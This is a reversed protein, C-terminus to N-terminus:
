KWFKSAKFIEELREYSTQKVMNIIKMDQNEFPFFNQKLFENYDIDIELQKIKDVFERRLNKDIKRLLKSLNSAFHAWHIYKLKEYCGCDKLNQEASSFATIVDFICKNTALTISDHRDVVYFYLPFPLYTVRKAKSYVLSWHAVDQRTIGKIFKLDKILSTLYFKNWTAVPVFRYVFPDATHINFCNEGYKEIINNWKTTQKLKLNQSGKKIDFIVVDANLREAHNYLLEVANNNIFDDADVFLTYKGTAHKVGENRAESLGKNEQTIIKINNYKNAYEELILGSNDTSGDNVCIIEYDKKFTQQILSDLCRKLYNEVNYVPVLISVEVM